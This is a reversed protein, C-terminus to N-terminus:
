SKRLTKMEFKIDKLQEEIKDIRAVNISDTKIKYIIGIIGVIIFIVVLLEILVM